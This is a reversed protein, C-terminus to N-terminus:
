ENSVVGLLEEVFNMYDESANNSVEYKFISGKAELIKQDITNEAKDIDKFSQVKPIAASQRIITNFKHIYNEDISMFENKIKNHESISKNYKTLLVGYIQLNPNLEEKADIIYDILSTLGDIAFTEPEIPIIIGDVASIINEMMIGASPNTDFVIIEYDDEITSIAKKLRYEGMRVNVLEKSANTLRSDSPIIDGMDNGSIVIDKLSVKDMIGEYITKEKDKALYISTSNAQPDFDVLLTKYGIQTFADTLCLATTTKAVGGKQNVIGIKLAM